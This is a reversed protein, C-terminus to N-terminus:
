VPVQLTLAEVGASQWARQLDERVTGITRGRNDVRAVTIGLTSTFYDALVDAANKRLKAIDKMSFTMSVYQIALTPQMQMQMQQQQQQQPTMQQYQELVHQRYQLQDPHPGRLSGVLWHAAAHLRADLEAIAADRDAELPLAAISACLARAAEHGYGAVAFVTYPGRMSSILSHAAAHLGADLEAIAADRDAELPLAAIPACLARAAERDYGAVAFVPLPSWM